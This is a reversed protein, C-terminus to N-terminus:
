AGDSRVLRRGDKFAQRVARAQEDATPMRGRTIPFLRRWAEYEGWRSRLLRDRGMALGLNHLALPAIWSWAQMHRPHRCLGPELNALVTRGHTALLAGFVIDWWPEGLIYTGFRDRNARWWDARVFFLDLGEVYTRGMRTEGSPDCWVDNRSVVVADMGDREAAALTRMAAPAVMIDSNVVGFWTRSTHVAAAAGADFLEKVFPKPKGEVGLVDPASPGLVPACVWDPLDLPEGRRGVNLPLIDWGSERLRAVQRIALQQRATAGADRLAVHNAVLVIPVQGDIAPEVPPLLHDPPASLRGSAPDITLSPDAPVRTAEIGPASRLDIASATLVLRGTSEPM